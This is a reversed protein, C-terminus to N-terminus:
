WRNGGGGGGGGGGGRRSGKGGRRPGGGGGGGRDGGRDGGGGGGGGMGMDPRASPQRERAINVNLARGDVMAGNLEEIAREADEPNEYEVFAFGRPQGTMRDTIVTASRIAGFPEFAQRLEAEGTSYSLNGVFLRNNM